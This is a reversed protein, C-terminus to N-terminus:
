FPLDAYLASPSAMNTVIEGFDNLCNGKFEQFNSVFTGFIALKGLFLM